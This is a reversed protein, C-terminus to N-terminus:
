VSGDSDETDGLLALPSFGRSIFQRQIIDVQAQTLLDHGLDIVAERFLSLQEQNPLEITLIASELIALIQQHFQSSNIASEWLQLVIGRLSELDVSSEVLNNADFSELIEKARVLLSKNLGKGVDSKWEAVRFEAATRSPLGQTREDLNAESSFVKDVTRAGSDTGGSNTDNFGTSVGNSISTPNDYGM